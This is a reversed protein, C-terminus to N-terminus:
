GADDQRMSAITPLTFHFAAGGEPRTAAWLDGGHNQVITRSIALGMGLGDPKTTEFPEFIATKDVDDLTLKELDSKLRLIVDGTIVRNGVDVDITEILGSIETWLQARRSAIVTGTLPIEEFVEAQEVPAVVVATGATQALVSPALLVILLSVCVSFRRHTRAPFPEATLM